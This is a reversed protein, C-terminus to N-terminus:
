MFISSRGDMNAPNGTVSASLGLAGRNPYGRLPQTGPADVQRRPIQGADPLEGPWQRDLSSRPPAAPRQADWWGHAVRNHILPM